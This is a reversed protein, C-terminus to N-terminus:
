AKRSRRLALVSWEGLRLRKVLYLGQSRHAALVANAQANLIGSLIAHGGPRLHRKLDKAVLCLPRAFINAMVLDYLAHRRALPDRYGQSRGVRVYDRLGNARVNGEAIRVAEPDCDLAVARGRCAKAQAMALIGSGCGVDLMTKLRAAGERKLLEDLMLLCGRTTPHEGTGFASTADIQLALRPNDIKDRHMAGYITWRAIPLPPFDAAVKKLWDFNGTKGLTVTPAEVGHFLALMAMRAQVMGMDPADQYLAEVRATACRPPVLLTVSVAGDELADGVAEALSPPCVVALNWFQKFSPM